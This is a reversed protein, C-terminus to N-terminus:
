DDAFYKKRPELGLESRVKNECLAEGAFGKLGVTSHEEDKSNNRAEGYLYHMCHILEHGLTIHMQLPEGSKTMVERNTFFMYCVSGSGKTGKADYESAARSDAQAQCKAAMKPKFGDGKGGDRWAEFVKQGAAGAFGFDNVGTTYTRDIPPTILVNCLRPWNASVHGPKADKIRQFITKMTASKHIMDLSKMVSVEFFPDQNDKYNIAIM